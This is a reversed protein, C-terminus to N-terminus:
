PRSGENEALRERAEVIFRGRPYRDLYRHLWSAASARRGAEAMARGAAFLATEGAPLDGFREAVIAYAAVAQDIKGRAQACEALLTRAEAEQRRDRVKTLVSSAEREAQAVHRNALDRRARSLQEAVDAPRPGSARQVPETAPVAPGSALPSWTQGAQLRAVLIRGDPALVRVSGRSVEVHSADVLFHTGLVEVTFSDTVVRFERRPEPDVDLEIAGFDLKVTSAKENWSISARRVARVRAHSVALEAGAVLERPQAALPAAQPLASPQTVLPSGPRRRDGGTTLIALSAALAGILAVGGLGMALHSKLFRVRLQPAQALGQQLARQFTRESTAATQSPIAKVALVIEDLLRAQERCDNCTQLHAHLARQESESVGAARAALLAGARGCRIPKM